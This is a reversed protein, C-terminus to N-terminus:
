SCCCLKASLGAKGACSSNESITGERCFESWDCSIAKWSNGIKICKKGQPIETGDPCKKAVQKKNKIEFGPSFSGDEPNCCEGMAGVEIPGIPKIKILEPNVTQLILFSTMALMLGSLAGTLWSKAETIKQPNGGATIWMFGSWMIVAAAVIGVIGIAYKYVAQIYEGISTGSIETEDGYYDGIPVQPTFKIIKADEKKGSQEEETKEPDQICKGDYCSYGLNCAPACQAVENLEILLAEAEEKTLESGLAQSINPELLLFFIGFMQFLFLILFFLILNNPKKHPCIKQIINRKKTSLM